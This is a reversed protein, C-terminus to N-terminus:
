MDDALQMDPDLYTFSRYTSYNGPHYGLEQVGAYILSEELYALFDDCVHELDVVEIDQGTGGNKSGLYSRIFDHAYAGKDRNAALYNAALAQHLIGVEPSPSPAEQPDRFSPWNSTDVLDPNKQVYMQEIKAFSLDQHVLQGFSDSRGIESFLDLLTQRGKRDLTIKISPEADFTVGQKFLDEYEQKVIRHYELSTQMGKMIAQGARTAEFAADHEESDTFNVFSPGRSFERTYRRDLCPVLTDGVGLLQTTERRAQESSTDYDQPINLSELSSEGTRSDGAQSAESTNNSDVTHAM